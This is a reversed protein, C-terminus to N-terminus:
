QFVRGFAEAAVAAINMEQHQSRGAPMEARNPWSYWSVRRYQRISGGIRMLASSERYRWKRAMVIDGALRDIAEPLLAHARRGVAAEPM